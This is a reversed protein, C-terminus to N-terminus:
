EIMIDNYYEIMITSMIKKWFKMSQFYFSRYVHSTNGVPTHSDQRQRTEYNHVINIECYLKTICKPQLDYHIKIVWDLNIFLNLPM